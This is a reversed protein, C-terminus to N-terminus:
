LWLRAKWPGLGERQLVQEVYRTQTTENGALDRATGWQPVDGTATYRWYLGGNLEAPGQEAIRGARDRLVVTVATVETDDMADIEIRDGARGAYDDLRISIIEPAHLCDRVAVNYITLDGQRAYAAYRAARAPDHAVARAYCTAGLFRSQHALQAASPRKRRFRPARSAVTRGNVQRFILNGVRGRLGEIGAPLEFKAM